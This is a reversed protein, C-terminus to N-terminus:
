AQDNDDPPTVDPLTIGERLAGLGGMVLVFAIFLSLLTLVSVRNNLADAIATAGIVGGILVAVLPLLHRRGWGSIGIAALVGILFLVGLIVAAGTATDSDPNTQAVFILNM